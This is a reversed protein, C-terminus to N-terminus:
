AHNEQADNSTSPEGSKGQRGQEIMRKAVVLVDRWDLVGAINMQAIDTAVFEKLPFEDHPDSLLALSLRVHVTKKTAEDATTREAGNGQKTVVSNMAKVPIFSMLLAFLYVQKM